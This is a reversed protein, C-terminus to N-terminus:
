DIIVLTGLPASLLAKMAADPIRVCGHSARTGMVSETPWTHLAVTAVGGAFETLVDSHAGLPLIVPSYSQKPDTIAALVFTRGRPTPTSDKGPSIPWTGFPQGDRIVEVTLADLHVRVLYPTRAVQVDSATVWGTSGNPRSPLLVRIWGLQETVIPLWTDNAAQKDPLRGIPPGGPAAYVPIPERNHVVGGGTVAQSDTDPPAGPVTTWTTIEVLAALEQATVPRAPIPAPGSEAAAQAIAPAPAVKAPRAPPTVQDFVLAGAVFLVPVLGCAVYGVIERIRHM